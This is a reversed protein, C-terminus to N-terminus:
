PKNQYTRTAEILVFKEVKDQLEHLRVDLLDFEDYFPFCDYVKPKYAPKVLFGVGSGVAIAAFLLFIKKRM